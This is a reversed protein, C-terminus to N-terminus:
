GRAGVLIGDPVSDAAIDVAMAEGVGSVSVSVSEGAVCRAIQRIVESILGFVADSRNDDADDGVGEPDDFFHLSLVVGASRAVNLVSVWRPDRGASIALLSRLCGEEVRARMRVDPDTCRSPDDVLVGLLSRAGAFISSERAAHFRAQAERREQQERKILCSRHEHEIDIAMVTLGRRVGAVMLVILLDAVLVPVMTDVSTGSNGVAIITAILSLILPPVVVRVRGDVLVFVICITAAADAGWTVNNPVGASDTSPASSMAPAASAIVALAAFLGYVVVIARVTLHGDRTSSHTQTWLMAAVLVWAIAAPLVDGIAPSRHIATALVGILLFEVAMVLSLRRSIDAIARTLVSQRDVTELPPVSVIVETGRGPQSRVDVGLLGDSARSALMSTLADTDDLGVGLDGVVIRTDGDLLGVSVRDAKSHKAANTVAESILGVIERRRWQPQRRLLAEVRDPSDIVVDIGLASAYDVVASSTAADPIRLQELEDIARVDTTFRRRLAEADTAAVGRAVACLTNIVTDHLVRSQGGMLEASAIARIAGEEARVRSAYRADALRAVGCLNKTLVTFAITSCITYVPIAVAYYTTIAPFQGVAHRLGHAILLACSASVSVVVGVVVALRGALALAAAVGVTVCVNVVVLLGASDTGHVSGALVVAILGWTLVPWYLRLRRALVLCWGVAHVAFVAEIVHAHDFSERTISTLQVIPMVAAWILVASRFLLAVRTSYAARDSLGEVRCSLEQCIASWTSSM